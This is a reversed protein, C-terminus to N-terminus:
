APRPNHQKMKRQRMLKAVIDRRDEDERENGLFDGDASGSNHSELHDDLALDDFNNPLGDAMHSLEDEGENSVVGGQSMRREMVRDVLEDHYVDGGEAMKKKRKMAYEIALPQKM